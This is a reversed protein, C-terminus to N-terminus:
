RNLGAIHSLMAVKASSYVMHGTTFSLVADTVASQTGCLIFRDRALRMLHWTPVILRQEDVEEDGFAGRKTRARPVLSAHLM